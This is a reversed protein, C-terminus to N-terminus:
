GVEKLMAISQFSYSRSTLRQYRSSPLVALSTM